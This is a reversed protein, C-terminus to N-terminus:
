SLCKEYWRVSHAGPYRLSYLTQSRVPRGPSRPEIGQLPSLIKEELRRTCVTEPAWGAEQGIPIPPGKGPNFRPRPTLGVVWGWKTGLDHILLLQVEEGGAGEYIDHSQKVNKKVECFIIAQWMKMAAICVPIFCFIFASTYKWM